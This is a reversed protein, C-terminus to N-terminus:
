SLAKNPIMLLNAFKAIESANNIQIEQVDDMSFCTFNAQKFKEFIQVKTDERVEILWKSTNNKLKEDSISSLVEIEYGEVDIKIFDPIGNKEFINSLTDVDVEITKNSVSLDSRMSNMRGGTVDDIYLKLKGISKGIGKNQLTLNTLNNKYKNFSLYAFNDNDPEYSIVRGNVSVLQSFLLAYQGINAGIDLVFDGEKIYKPLKKQINEEYVIRKSFLFILHEIPNYFLLVSYNYFPKGIISFKGKVIRLSKKILLSFLKKSNM